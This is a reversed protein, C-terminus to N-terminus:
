SKPKLYQGYQLRRMEWLDSTLYHADNGIFGLGLTQLIHAVAVAPVDVVADAGAAIFGPRFRSMDVAGSACFLHFKILASGVRVTFLVTLSALLATVPKPSCSHADVAAFSLGNFTVANAAFAGILAGVASHYVADM